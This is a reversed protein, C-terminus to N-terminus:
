NVRLEEMNNERKSLNLYFHSITTTYYPNIWLYPINLTFIGVLSGLIFWGIFSLWTIFLDLKHGQMMEKSKKIAESATYEPNEILIYYAMSYSFFKIIGPVILLLSWLFILITQLIGLKLSRFLNNKKFGEFLDSITTSEKKALRLTFNNYGYSMISQTAIYIIFIIAWMIVTALGLFLVASSDAIAEGTVSYEVFSDPDIMGIILSFLMFILCGIIFMGIAPIGYYLCTVVVGLGWNGKISSLAAKKLDSIM